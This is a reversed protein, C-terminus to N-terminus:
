TKKVMKCLYKLDLGYRELNGSGQSLILVYINGLFQLCIVCSYNGMYKMQKFQARLSFTCTM